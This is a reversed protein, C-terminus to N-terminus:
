AVTSEIELMVFVRVDDVMALVERMQDHDVVQCDFGTLETADSLHVNATTNDFKTAEIGIISKFGYKEIVAIALKIKEIASM